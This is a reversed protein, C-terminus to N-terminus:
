QHGAGNGNAHGNIAHGNPKARRNLRSVMFDAKAAVFVSDGQGVMLSTIAWVLADLRDPSPAGTMPEWTLMQDELQLMEGVHSVRGQEYLAAVPEARAQKSRSAHVIKVPLGPRVTQLTHRVMEGGQNGEAVVLDARLEDYLTVATMAWEHPTKRGSRDAIVYGRKDWGIGAGVIGCLASAQDVKVGGISPDIAVVVRMMQPRDAPEIHRIMDRTWLAGEVDELVEGSLEQRGLRTGHYQSVVREFFAKALNPRNDWTTGRTVANLQDALLKRILPLAKPTTAIMCRPDGGLRFGFMAMDWTDQLRNWAALEDAWITDHQPGRLREPEEASFTTAITGNAWVLQKNGPSWEPAGLRSGDLMTDRPSCVALLGSDGEVMVMRADFATPAILAIRKAKGERVRRRVWEAGTRTKGAGRGALYLWVVWDDIGNQARAPPLQEARALFEWDHLLAVTQEDTLGSLVTSQRDPTLSAVSSIHWPRDPSPTNPM